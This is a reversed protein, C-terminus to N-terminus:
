TNNPAIAKEIFSKLQDFIVPNAAILHTNRYDYGDSGINSVRGGAEQVLLTGPAHDWPNGKRELHTSIKGDNAGRALWAYECGSAHVKPMARVMARLRDGTGPAHQSVDGYLSVFAREMPRNSVHIAHGNCTAGHGKMAVYYEDLTFNYIVSMVPENQHILALMNTCFPLGRIFAETGDIPDVLWFTEQNYDVGTEEGGFGIGGDFKALEDRLREEVKFDMATVVTKDEKLHHEIAGQAQLLEPRLDLLVKRICRNAQNFFDLTPQM